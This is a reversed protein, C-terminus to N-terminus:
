AVPQRSGSAAPVRGQRRRGWWRRLVKLEGPESGELAHVVFQVLFGGVFLGLGLLLITASLLFVAIPVLLAGVISPPISAMHVAFSVPRRHRALWNEVLPGPHMPPCLM